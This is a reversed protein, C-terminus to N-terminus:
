AWPRWQARLNFFKKKQTFFFITTNNNETYMSPMEPYFVTSLLNLSSAPFCTTCINCKFENNKEGYNKEEMGHQHLGILLLTNM